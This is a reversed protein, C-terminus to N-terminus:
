KRKKHYVFPKNIKLHKFKKNKKIKVMDSLSEKKAELIEKTEPNLKIKLLDFSSSMCILNWVGETLVGIIKGTHQEINKEKKVREVVEWLDELDVSIKNLSKLEKLEKNEQESFRIEQFPSESYAVKNKSPVYFDINIQDGEREDKNLICFIACFYADPNEKEFEKFFDKKKLRELFDSARM